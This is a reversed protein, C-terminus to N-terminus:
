EKPKRRAEVADRFPGPATSLEKLADYGDCGLAKALPLMAVDLDRMRQEAGGLQAQIQRFQQRMVDLAPRLSEAEHFRDALDNVVSAMAMDATPAKRSRKRPAKKTPAKRRTPAKRKAAMTLVGAPQAASHDGM